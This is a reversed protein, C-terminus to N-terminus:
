RGVEKPMMVVFQMCAQRLMNDHGVLGARRVTRWLPYLNGVVVYADDEQWVPAAVDYGHKNGVGAEVVLSIGGKRGLYRADYVLGKGLGM